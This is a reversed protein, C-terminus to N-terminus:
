VPVLELHTIEAPAAVRMPPGWYGTGRSVYVAASKHQYLGAVYPTVLEVAYKWPFMQGGHTHGSLQLDVGLTEAEIITQPQHALLVVPKSADRGKLARPVDQGHGKGFRKASWDDVGALDLVGLSVRENRLVRVGQDRLFALWQEVGSYYEHNGTVFFVGDKARLDAIPAALSGLEEVSGDVLDGTIVICDPSLANVRAVVDAVFARGITPGVHIDSLQVIRYPPTGPPLKALPIRVRKIAVKGLANAMGLGSVAGAAIVVGGAVLRALTIRREPDVAGDGPTLHVMRALAVVAHVADSALLLLFLFFMVGLWTYVVWMVPSSIVRPAFRAVAFGAISSVALVGLTATAVTNWPPPLAPDRVLRAWLYYHTGFLISSIVALAVLVRTLSM